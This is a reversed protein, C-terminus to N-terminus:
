YNYKDFLSNVISKINSKLVESGKVNDVVNNEKKEEKNIVKDYVIFCSLGVVLVSLIIIVVNKM